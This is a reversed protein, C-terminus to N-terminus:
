VQSKITLREIKNKNIKNLIIKTEKKKFMRLYWYYSIYNM